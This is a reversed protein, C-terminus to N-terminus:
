HETGTSVADLRAMRSLVGAVTPEVLEDV